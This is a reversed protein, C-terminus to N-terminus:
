KQAALVAADEDSIKPNMKKVERVFSVLADKNLEGDKFYQIDRSFKDAAFVVTPPPYTHYIHHILVTCHHLIHSFHDHHHQIIPHKCSLCTCNHHANNICVSFIRVPEYQNRKKISEDHIM